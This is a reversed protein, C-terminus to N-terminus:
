SARVQHLQQAMCNKLCKYPTMNSDEGGSYVFVPDVPSIFLKCDLDKDFQNIKAWYALKCATLCFQLIMDCYISTLQCSSDHICLSTTEWDGLQADTLPLLTAFILLLGGVRWPFVKMARWSFTVHVERAPARTAKMGVWTVSVCECGRLFINNVCGASYHITYTPRKRCSM